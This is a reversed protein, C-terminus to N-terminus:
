FQKNHIYSNSVKEKQLRAHLLRQTQLNFATSDIQTHQFLIVLYNTKQKRSTKYIYMFAMYISHVNLFAMMLHGKQNCNHFQYCISPNILRRKIFTRRTVQGYNGQLNDQKLQFNWLAKMLKHVEGDFIKRHLLLHSPAEKVKCHDYDPKIELDIKSRHSKLMCQGSKM